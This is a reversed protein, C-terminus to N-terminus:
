QIEFTRIFDKTKGYKPDSASIYYSNPDPFFYVNDYGSLLPADYDIFNVTITIEGEYDQLNSL